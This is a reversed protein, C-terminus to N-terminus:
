LAGVDDNPYLWISKKSYVVLEVYGYTVKSICCLVLNNEAPVRLPVISVEQSLLAMGLRSEVADGLETILLLM